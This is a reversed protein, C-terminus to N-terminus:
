AKKAYGACWGKANVAKGAYLQCPGYAGTSGQYFNCNECAMGAKHTPNKSDDVKSADEVYGLAQATPDASTLHPLDATDAVCPLVNVLLAAGAAQSLCKLLRRRSADPGISKVANTM